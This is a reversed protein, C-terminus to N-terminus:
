SYPDKLPMFRHSMPSKTWPTSERSLVRSKHETPSNSHKIDRMHHVGQWLSATDVKVKSRLMNLSRSCALVKKRKPSQEYYIDKFSIQKSLVPTADRYDPIQIPAKDRNFNLHRVSPAQKSMFRQVVRGKSSIIEPEDLTLTRKIISPFEGERREPSQYSKTIM